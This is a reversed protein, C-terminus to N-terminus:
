EGNIIRNHMAKAVMQSRSSVRLKKFLSKIHSRVTHESIFLLESIARDTHGKVVCNLVELERQTFRSSQAKDNSAEQDERFHGFVSATVNPDLFARDEIVHNIINILEDREVKKLVYGKAGVQIAKKVFQDDDYISLMIVKINPYKECVLRTTEIGSIGPMKVDMLIIDPSFKDILDLCQFGSSAEAVVEIHDVTELLQRLGERVILHDDVIMIRKKNM